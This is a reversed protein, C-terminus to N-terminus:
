ITEYFLLYPIKSYEYINKSTILYNIRDDDFLVWEDPNHMSRTISIYHRMKLSIIAFLKYQTNELFLYLPFNNWISTIDPSQSPHIVLIKPFRQYIREQIMDCVASCKTCKTVKFFVRKQSISNIINQEFDLIKVSVSLFYLDETKTVINQCIICTTSIYEQISFVDNDIKIRTSELALHSVM